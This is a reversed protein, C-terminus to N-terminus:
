DNDDKREAGHRGKWDLGIGEEGKGDRGIAM